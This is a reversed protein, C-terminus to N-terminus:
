PNPRESRRLPPPLPEGERHADIFSQLIVAAARDDIRGTPRKGAEESLMEAEQTSFQEEWLYVPTKVVAALRNAWRRVINAQLPDADAYDAPQVPLGVIVAAIQQRAIIANIAAFDEARTKRKLLQLPRAAIWLADCIALGIVKTGHDIGLLRGRNASSM